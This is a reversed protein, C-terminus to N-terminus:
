GHFEGVYLNSGRQPRKWAGHLAPVVPSPPLQGTYRVKLKEDLDLKLLRLQEIAENVASQLLM